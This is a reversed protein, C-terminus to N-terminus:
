SPPRGEAHSRLEPVLEPATVRIPLQWLLTRCADGALCLAHLAPDQDKPQLEAEYTTNIAKADSVPLKCEDVEKTENKSGVADAAWMIGGTM